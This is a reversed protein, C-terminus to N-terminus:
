STRIKSKANGASEPISSAKTKSSLAAITVAPPPDNPDASCQNFTNATKHSRHPDRLGMSIDASSNRDDGCGYRDGGEADVEVSEGCAAKKSFPERSSLQPGFHRSAAASTGLSPSKNILPSPNSGSINDTARAAVNLTPAPPFKAQPRVFLTGQSQSSHTKETALSRFLSRDRTTCMRLVIGPNHFELYIEGAKQLVVDDECQFIEPTRRGVLPDFYQDFPPM